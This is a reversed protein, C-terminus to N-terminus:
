HLKTEVCLGREQALETARDLMAQSIDGLTVQHGLSALLLGTNGGGTAVDLVRARAPLSVHSLAAEVDDVKELIHGKTYRESQRSFQQESARQVENLEMARSKARASSYLR